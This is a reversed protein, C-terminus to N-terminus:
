EETKQNEIAIDIVTMGLDHKVFNKLFNKIGENFKRVEINELM